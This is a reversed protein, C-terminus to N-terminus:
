SFAGQIIMEWDKGQLFAIIKSFNVGACTLKWETQVKELGRYYFQRFGRNQKINGFTPEVVFSRIAYHLYGENSTLRERMMEKLMERYDRYIRRYTGKKGICLSSRPCTACAVKNEYVFLLDSTQAKMMNKFHLVKGAPCYYCDNEDDYSFQSKSYKGSKNKEYMDKKFLKDPGLIDRRESSATAM